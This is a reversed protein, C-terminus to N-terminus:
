NLTCKIKGITTSYSKFVTSMVDDGIDGEEEDSFQTEELADQIAQQHQSSVEEFKKKAVDISNNELIMYLIIPLKTIM